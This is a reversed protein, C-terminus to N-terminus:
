TAPDVLVNRHQLLTIHTTTSPNNRAVISVSLIQVLEERNISEQKSHSVMTVFTERHNPIRLRRKDVNVMVFTERHNPLRRKDVVM